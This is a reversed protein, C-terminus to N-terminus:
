WQTAMGVEGSLRQLAVSMNIKPEFKAIEIEMKPSKKGITYGVLVFLLFDFIKFCYAIVKKQFVPIKNSWLQVIVKQGARYRHLISSKTIQAM